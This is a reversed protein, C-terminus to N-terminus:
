IQGGVLDRAKRQSPVWRGCRPLEDREPSLGGNEESSYKGSMQHDSAGRIDDRKRLDIGNRGAFSTVLGAERFGQWGGDRTGNQWIQGALKSMLAYKREGEEIGGRGSQWEHIRDGSAYQVEEARMPRAPGESSGWRYPVNRVMEGESMRHRISM